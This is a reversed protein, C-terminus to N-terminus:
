SAGDIRVKDGPRLRENGRVVVLDGEELGDLVEYRSGVAEGLTIERPEAVDGSAVFVMAADGQKIVADKHVTLVRRPAGVPVWVTVSQDAALPRETEGFRPVFRVARTRTLPNEEPVVARVVAEHESGDDLALGVTAGPVLGGIRQYPVDAEVELSQDAILRVLAEGVNVYAGAESMRQIVVGDYPALVETNAVDIEALELEAAATAIAAEAEALQAQFVAVNQRADDYRAQSFAASAKLGELRALEQGALKLQARATSQRARAESLEGAAQDRVAILRDRNLVALVQGAEVRDGIEVRFAQVPAEVRSSVSGAQRPVLRGLVPVTQSLPQVAVRDVRVLAGEQQARADAGFGAPLAALAALALALVLTWAARGAGRTKPHTRCFM